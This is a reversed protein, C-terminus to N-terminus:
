WADSAIVLTSWSVAARRTVRGGGPARTGLDGDRPRPVINEFRRLEAGREPLEPDPPAVMRGSDTHQACNRHATNDIPQVGGSGASVALPLPSDVDSAVLRGVLPEGVVSSVSSIVDLVDSVV